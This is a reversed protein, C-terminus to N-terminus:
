SPGNSQAWWGQHILTMLLNSSFTGLFFIGANFQQGGHSRLHFFCILFLPLGFVLRLGLHGCRLSLLPFSTPFIPSLHYGLSIRGNWSCCLSVLLLCSPSLSFEDTGLCGWSLFLLPLCTSPFRFCFINETGLWGCCLCFHSVLQPCALNARGFCGCTAFLNFVLLYQSVTRFLFTPSVHLMMRHVADVPPPWQLFLAAWPAWLTSPSLPLCTPSLRHSVPLIVRGLGAVREFSCSGWVIIM